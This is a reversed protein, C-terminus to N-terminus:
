LKTYWAFFGTQALAVLSGRIMRGLNSSPRVMAFCCSRKSSSESSPRWHALCGSSLGLGFSCRPISNAIARKSLNIRFDSFSFCARCLQKDFKKRQQRRCDGPCASHLLPCWINFGFLPVACRQCLSDSYWWILNESFRSSMSDGNYDFTYLWYKLCNKGAFVCRLGSVSAVETLSWSCSWSSGFIHREQCLRKQLCTTMHKAAKLLKASFDLNVSLVVEEKSVKQPWKTLKTNEGIACASSAFSCVYGLKLGLTCLSAAHQPHLHRRTIIDSSTPFNYWPGPRFPLQLSGCGGQRQMAHCGHGSRPEHLVTIKHWKSPHSISTQKKGKWLTESAISFCRRLYWLVRHCMWKRITNPLWFYHGWGFQNPATTLDHNNWTHTSHTNFVRWSNHSQLRIHSSMCRHICHHALVVQRISQM